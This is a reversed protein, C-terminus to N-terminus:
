AKEIESLLVPKEFLDLKAYDGDIATVEFPALNDCHGPCNFWNVRDGIQIRPAVQQVEAGGAIWEAFQVSKEPLRKCAQNFLDSTISPTQKLSAMFAMLEVKTSLSALGEVLAAIKEEKATVEDQADLRDPHAAIQAEPQVDPTTAITDVVAEVQETVNKGEQNCGTVGQNCPIHLRETSTQNLAEAELNGETVDKGSILTHSNQKEGLEEAAPTFLNPEVAEQNEKIRREPFSTVLSNLVGPDQEPDVNQQNCKEHLQSYSVTVSTVPSTVPEEVPDDPPTPSKWDDIFGKILQFPVLVCRKPKYEPEKPEVEATIKARYYALSEDRNTHFKQVSQLTGGSKAILAELM